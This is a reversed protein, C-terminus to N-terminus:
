NTMYNTVPKQNQKYKENIANSIKKFTNLRRKLDFYKESEKRFMTNNGNPETWYEFFSKVFEADYGTPNKSSKVFPYLSEKFERVRTEFDKRFVREKKNLSNNMLQPNESEPKDSEPKDSEPNERIPLLFEPENSIIYEVNSFLGDKRITITKIYGANVLEEFGSIMSDYGDTSRNKLDSKYVTWEEDLSLLYAILGKAKWSLDTRRLIANPVQTFGYNKKLTIKGQNM